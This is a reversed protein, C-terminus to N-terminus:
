LIYIGLNKKLRISIPLLENNITIVHRQNMDLYLCQNINLVYSKHIRIFTSPLRLHITNITKTIIVSDNTTVVKTYNRKGELYIIDQINYMKIVGKVLLGIVNIPEFQNIQNTNTVKNM